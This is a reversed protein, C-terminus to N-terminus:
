LKIELNTTASTTLQSNKVNVNTFTTSSVELNQYYVYAGCEPGIILNEQTYTVTLTNVSDINAGFYFNFTTEASLPNVPLTLSAITDGKHFVTDGKYFLYQTGSVSISSLIINNLTDKKLKQLNMKVNNTSSVLCDPKDLCASLLLVLTGPLLFRM